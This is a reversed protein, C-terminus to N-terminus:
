RGPLFEVRAGLFHLKVDEVEFERTRLVFPEDVEVLAGKTWRKMEHVGLKEDGTRPFFLDHLVNIEAVFTNDESTVRGFVSFIAGWEEQLEFGALFVV